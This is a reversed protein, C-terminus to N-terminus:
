RPRLVGVVDEAARVAARDVGVDNAAVAEEAGDLVGAEVGGALFAQADVVEAM